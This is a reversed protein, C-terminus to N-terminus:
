FAAPTFGFHVRVQVGSPILRPPCDLPSRRRTLVYDLIVRPTYPTERAGSASTAPSHRQSRAFPIEPSINLTPTTPSPSASKSTDTSPAAYDVLTGIEISAIEAAEISSLRSQSRGWNRAVDTQTLATARRLEGLSAVVQQEKRLETVREAVREAFDNVRPHTLPANM